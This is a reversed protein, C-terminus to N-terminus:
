SDLKLFQFDAMSPFFLYSAFRTIVFRALNPTRRPFDPMPIVYPSTGNNDGLLPDKQSPDLKFFSGSNIWETQLFEFQDRLSTVVAIFIIGREDQGNSTANPPLQEGYPTGRRIIRHGSVAGNGGPAGDRPNM